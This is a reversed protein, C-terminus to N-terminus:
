RKVSVVRDPVGAAAVTLKVEGHSSDEVDHALSPADVVKKDGVAVVLQQSAVGANSLPHGVKTLYAGGRFRDFKWGLCPFATMASSGLVQTTASYKDVLTRVADLSVDYRVFVLFETGEGTERAYEEWYWDSRQAPVAAGASAQLAEVVSHRSARVPEAAANYAEITKPDGSREQTALQLASLAKSRASSYAPMVTDRFFPDSIKLGVTSALEELAADQAEAAGQEKNPRYSSVGVCMLRNIMDHCYGSSPVDSIIWDPRTFTKPTSIQNSGLQPNDRPGAESSRNSLKLFALVGAAAALVGLGAYLVRRSGAPKAGAPEARGASLANELKDPPEQKSKQLFADLAVDRDRAPLARLVTAAEPTAEVQMSSRCAPCHSQPMLGQVLEELNMAVDITHNSTADCTGCRYTEQFTRVKLNGRLDDLPVGAEIFGPPCGLLQVAKVKPLATRLYTRWNELQMPDFVVGEVDVVVTSNPTANALVDAPLTGINGTLRLYTYDKHRRRYARFRTLDPSLDYNLHQRMFALVEDDIDFAPRSAITDFFAAPYEELRARGGCSPCQRYSGPIDRIADRPTLFVTQLEDNCGTCRYSAYFSVLKAHGLLGTVLTLQSVAYANCEVIYVDCDATVRLFDMWESMGWSAFRRVEAMHVVLKKTRVAMATKRGEFGENLTGHMTLFTIGGVTTKESSYKQRVETLQATTM